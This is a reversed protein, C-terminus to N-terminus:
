MLRFRGVDGVPYRGFQWPLVVFLRHKKALTTVSTITLGVDVDFPGAPATIAATPHLAPWVFNRSALPLGIEPQVWFPAGAGHRWDGCFPSYVEGVPFLPVNLYM